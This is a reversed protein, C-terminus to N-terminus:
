LLRVRSPHQTPYKCRPCNQLGLLKPIQQHGQPLTLLVDGLSASRGPALVLPVPSSPRTVGPVRDGEMCAPHACGRLLDWWGPGPQLMGLSGKGLPKGLNHSGGPAGRGGELRRWVLVENAAGPHGQSRLCLLLARPPPTHAALTRTGILLVLMHHSNRSAGFAVAM